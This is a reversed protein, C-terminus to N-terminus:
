SFNLRSALFKSKQETITINKYQSIEKMHLIKHIFSNEYKGIIRSFRSIKTMDIGVGKIHNM